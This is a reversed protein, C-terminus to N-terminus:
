LELFFISSSNLLFPRLVELFQYVLAIIGIKETDAPIIRFAHDQAADKAPELCCTKGFFNRIDEFWSVYIIRFGIFIIIIGIKEILLM